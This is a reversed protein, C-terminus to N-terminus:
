KIGPIGAEIAKSKARDLRSSLRVLDQPSADTPPNEVAMLADFWFMYLYLQEATLSIQKM